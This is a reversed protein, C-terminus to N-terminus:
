QAYARKQAYMKKDAEAIMKHLMESDAPTDHVYGAAFRVEYEAGIQPKHCMIYALKKEFDAQSLAPVMVLFEDGGYRYCYEKGFTDALLTGTEKLVRDGAEHGYTDNIVKFANVDLMMVTVASGAYSEFDQQLAMRNRLGTLADTLSMQQLLANEKHLEKTLSDVEAFAQVEARKLFCVLLMDALIGVLSVVVKQLNEATFHIFSNDTSFFYLTYGLMIVSATIGGGFGFLASCLVLGAILIMNPNPIKFFYVVAILAIMIAATILIKLFLSVQLQM